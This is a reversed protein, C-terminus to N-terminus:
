GLRHPHCGNKRALNETSLSISSLAAQLPSSPSLSAEMQTVFGNFNAGLIGLQLSIKDGMMQPVGSLANKHELAAQSLRVALQEHRDQLLDTVSTLDNEHRSTLTRMHGALSEALEEPLLRLTETSRHLSNVTDELRQQRASREMDRAVANKEHARLLALFAAKEITLNRYIERATDIEHLRHYAVCLQPIERMYGSYSSWLQTSRSLADVCPGHLNPHPALDRLNGLTFPRCELPLSYHQGTAVECLTMAIAASIRHPSDLDPESCRFQLAKGVQAFCDPQKALKVAQAQFRDLQVGGELPAEHLPKAGSSDGNEIGRVPWQLAGVGLIGFLVSVSSLSFSSVANLPM